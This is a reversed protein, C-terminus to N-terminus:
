KPCCTKTSDALCSTTDCNAATTPNYLKYGIIGMAAVIVIIFIFKTFKSKPKPSCCDSTANNDSKPSCCNASNNTNGECGCSNKNESNEM